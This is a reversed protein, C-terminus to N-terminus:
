IFIQRVQGRHRGTNYLLPSSAVFGTLVKFFSYGGGRGLVLLHRNSVENYGWLLSQHM